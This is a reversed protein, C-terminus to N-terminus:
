MGNKAQTSQKTKAQEAETSHLRLSAVGSVVLVDLLISRQGYLLHLFIFNRGTDRQRLSQQLTSGAHTLQGTLTVIMKTDLTVVSPPAGRHAM